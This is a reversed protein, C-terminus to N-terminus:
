VNKKIWENLKNINFNDDITFGNGFEYEDEEENEISSYVTVDNHEIVIYYNDSSVIIITNGNDIYLSMKNLIMIFNNTIMKKLTPTMYIYTYSNKQEIKDYDFKFYNNIINKNSYYDKIIYDFTELDSPYKNAINYNASAYIVDNDVNIQFTYKHCNIVYQYNTCNGDCSGSCVKCQEIKSLKVKDYDYKSMVNNIYRKVICFNIINYIIYLFMFCVLIILGIKIIKKNRKKNLEERDDVIALNCKPCVIDKSNLKHGCNTCYNNM